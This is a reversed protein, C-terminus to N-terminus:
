PLSEPQARTGCRITQIRLSLGLLLSPTDNGPDYHFKRSEGPELAKLKGQSHCSSDALPNHNYSRRLVQIRTGAPCPSPQDQLYGLASLSYFWLQFHKSPCPLPPFAGQGAGAASNGTSERITQPWKSYPLPNHLCQSPM